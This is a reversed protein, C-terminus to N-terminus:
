IKWDEPVSKENARSEFSRMDLRGDISETGIALLASEESSALLPIREVAASTPLLALLTQSYRCRISSLKGYCDNTSTYRTRIDFEKGSIYV